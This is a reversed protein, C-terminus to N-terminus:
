CTIKIFKILLLPSYITAIYIIYITIYQASNIMKNQIMEKKLRTPILVLAAALIRRRHATDTDADAGGLARGGRPGPGPPVGAARAAAAGGQASCSYLLPLVCTMPLIIVAFKIIIVIVINTLYSLNRYSSDIINICGSSV